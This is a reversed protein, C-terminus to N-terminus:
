LLESKAFLGPTALTTEARDDESCKTVSHDLEDGSYLLRLAPTIRAAVQLTDPTLFQFDFAFIIRMDTTDVVKTPPPIRPYRQSFHTLVTCRANMKKAIELAEGITSHRKLCAEARMSDEFTSEHILLDAPRAALALKQSPRCDGSYVVRGFPTGDLIVAYSYPCHQVPVSLCNSFGIAEKMQAAAQPNPYQFARCELSRFTRSIRSDVSNAYDRLFRFIPPPAILLLPTVARRQELLRLLGLHHDAHPHSIWVVTIKSLLDAEDSPSTQMRLLQGVTGEGVDLLMCRGDSNRLLMGTVNRYKCPLASATGTFLLEGRPHLTCKEAHQRNKEEEIITEASQRAGSEEMQKMRTADGDEDTLKNETVFGHRNRPLLIFETGPKGIKYSEVHEEKTVAPTPRWPSRFISPCLKARVKATSEASRHPTEAEASLNMWLHHVDEYRLQTQRWDQAKAHHFAKPSAIHVVLDLKEGAEALKEPIQLSDFFADINDPCDPYRLVLVAIGPSSSTVVQHSHVTTEVKTEGHVFTVSKGSKLQAFMPGKPVGLEQAQQPLFKGVLPPTTYLYSLTRRRFSDRPRKRGAYEIGNDHIEEEFPLCFVSFRVPELTGKKKKSQKEKSIPTVPSAGAAGEYVRLKYKPRRAFHDLAELYARTGLPGFMHIHAKEDSNRLAYFPWRPGLERNEPTAIENEAAFLAAQQNDGGQEENLAHIDSSTLLFGPLGGVSEHSIQTLCVAQVSSVKQGYEIFARQSGEGCDILVKSGDPSVLLLSPSSDLSSATLVRLSSTM